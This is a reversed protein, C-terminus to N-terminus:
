SIKQVWSMLEFKRIGKAHLPDQLWVHLCLKLLPAPLEGEEM